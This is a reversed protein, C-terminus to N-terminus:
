AMRQGVDPRRLGSWEECAVISNAPNQAMYKFTAPGILASPDAPLLDDLGSVDQSATYNVGGLTYEYFIVGERVELITANGVRGKSNVTLRRKREREAPTTRSGFLHWSTVGFLGSIAALASVATGKSLPVLPWAIADM